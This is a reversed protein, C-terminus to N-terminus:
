DGLLRILVCWAVILVGVFVPWDGFRTYVSRQNIPKVTGLVVGEIQPECAAIVEGWPSIICTIGTSACRVFYRRNEIARLRALLCHQRLAVPNDYDAANVQVTLLQAGESVTERANRPNIDDYCIMGGIKLGDNAIMPHSHNGAERITDINALDRLAPIVSQGPVYEGFPLLSRKTYRGIIEHHHDILLSTNRYPGDKAADDAFTVGCALLMTGPIAYGPLSCHPERSLEYVRDENALNDLRDSYVGLSSEPWIVLDPPPSIKLSLECLREEARVFSSNVQVAAVRLDKGEGAISRWHSDSWFGYIVAIASLVLVTLTFSSSAPTNGADAHAAFLVRKPYRWDLTHVIACSVGTMLWTLGLVGGIDVVQTLVESGILMHAMTWPFVRPWFYDLVIVLSPVIWICLTRRRFVQFCVIGILIWTISEFAIMVFFFLVAVPFAVDFNEAVVSPIWHFAVTRVSMGAAFWRAGSSRASNGTALFLILTWLIWAIAATIIGPPQLWCLGLALGCFISRLIGSLGVARQGVRPNQLIVKLNDTTCNQHSMPFCADLGDGPFVSRNLRNTHSLMRQQFAFRAQPNM